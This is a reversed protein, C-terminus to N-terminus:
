IEKIIKIHIPPYNPRNFFESVIVTYKNYDLNKVFDLGIKAMVVQSLYNAIGKFGFIAIVELGIIALIQKNKDIFVENFIPELIKVSMAELSSAVIMLVVAFIIMWKQPFLYKRWIDKIIVLSKGSFNSFFKRIGNFIM